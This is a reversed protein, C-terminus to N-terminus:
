LNFARQRFSTFWPAGLLESAQQLFKVKMKVRQLDNRRENEIWFQRLSCYSESQSAAAALVQIKDESIGPTPTQADESLLVLVSFAGGKEIYGVKPGVVYRCPNSSFVKFVVTETSINDIRFMDNGGYGSIMLLRKDIQILENFDYSSRSPGNLDSALRHPLLVKDINRSKAGLDSVIRSNDKWARRFRNRRDISEPARDFYKKEDQQKGFISRGISEPEHVQTSKRAGLDSVIRATNRWIRKKSTGKEFRKPAPEIETIKVEDKSTKPKTNSDELIVCRSDLEQTSSETALEATFSNGTRICRTWNGRDISSVRESVLGNAKYHREFGKGHGKMNSLFRVGFNIREVYTDENRDNWFQTRMAESVEPALAVRLQIRDKSLGPLPTPVELRHLTILRSEGQPIYGYNPRVVYRNPATTALKFAIDDSATNVVRVTDTLRPKGSLLGDIHVEFEEKDVHVLENAIHPVTRLSQVDRFQIFEVGLRFKYSISPNRNLTWFERPSMYDAGRDLAVALIFRDVTLGYKLPPDRAVVFRIATTKGTPIRGMNPKVEYRSHNNTKVKFMVDVANGGNAVNELHVVVASRVVSQFVLVNKDLRVLNTADPLAGMTGYQVASEM